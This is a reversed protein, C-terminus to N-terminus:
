HVKPPTSANNGLGQPSQQLNLQQTILSQILAQQQKPSLNPPLASQQLLLESVQAQLQALQQPTLQISIAPQQSQSQVLQSMATPSSIDNGTTAPAAQIPTEGGLPVDQGVRGGSGDEGSGEGKVGGIEGGGDSEERCGESSVGVVKVGGESDGGVSGSSSGDGSNYCCSDGVEKGGREEGGVDSSDVGGGGGGSGDRSISGSSGDGSGSGVGAMGELAAPKGHNIAIKGVAERQALIQQVVNYNVSTSTMVCQIQEFSLTNLAEPVIDNSTAGEVAHASQNRSYARLLTLLFVEYTDENNSLVTLAEHTSVSPNSTDM